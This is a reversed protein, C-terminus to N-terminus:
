DLRRQEESEDAEGAHELYVKTTPEESVDNEKKIRAQAAKRFGLNM